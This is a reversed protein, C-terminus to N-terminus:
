NENISFAISLVKSLRGQENFIPIFNQCVLLVKEKFLKIKDTILKSNGNKIDEWFKKYDDSNVDMSTFEKHFRGLLNQKETEFVLLFNHNIDIIKGRIDYYIILSHNNISNIFNNLEAEKKKSEAQINHLETMKQKMEEEKLAMEEAQKQSKILLENTQENIRVSIITSAISQAIKEIFDLEHPETIKFTAIEIIGLVKDDTKLPVIILCVPKSEGLGSSITFYNDPIDTLFITEKELYCTGVLGEGPALIHHIYKKRNYAFASVMELYPQCSQDEKVLFFAGQNANLYKVLNTIILDALNTLDANNMRLIEAFRAIGENEWLRKKEDIKYKQDEIETKLLSKSMELLSNGLIDDDSVPKFTIDHNGKGIEESFELKTKLNMVLNNLQDHIENIEEDITREIPEPLEGRVLKTLYFKINQLPKYLSAFIINIFLLLLCVFIFILIILNLNSYFVNNKVEESILGSLNNNLEKLNEVHINLNLILGGQGILGTKIDSHYINDTLDSIKKLYVIAEQTQDMKYKFLQIKAKDIENEIVSITEAKPERFYNDTLSNLNNLEETLDNNNLGAISKHMDILILKVQGCLGSNALGRIRLQESLQGLSMKYNESENIMNSLVNRISM